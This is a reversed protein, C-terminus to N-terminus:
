EFFRQGHLSERLAPLSSCDVHDHPNKSSFPPECMGKQDHPYVRLGADCPQAYGVLRDAHTVRWM